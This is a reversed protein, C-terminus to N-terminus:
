RHRRARGLLVALADARHAEPERQGPRGVSATDVRSGPSRSRMRWNEVIENSLRSRCRSSASGHASRRRRERTRRPRAAAVVTSSAISRADRAARRSAHGADRQVVRSCHCRVSCNRPVLDVEVRQRGRDAASSDGRTGVHPEAAAARERAVARAVTTHSPTDLARRADVASDGSRDLAASPAAAAERARRSASREVRVECPQAASTSAATRRGARRRDAATATSSAADTALPM